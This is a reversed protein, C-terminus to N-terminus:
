SWGQGAIYQELAAIRSADSPHTSAFEPTSGQRQEAMLRWLAIAESPRYGARQLCAAIMSSVSGKGNTGGVLVFRQGHEPHGRFALAQRMRSSGM